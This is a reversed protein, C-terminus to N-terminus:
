RKGVNKWLIAALVILLAALRLLFLFPSGENPHKLALFFFNDVSQIAFFASFALFLLDRTQRWFRLFYVCAALSCATAFGLLFADLMPYRIPSLNM